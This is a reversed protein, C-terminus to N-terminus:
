QQVKYNYASESTKKFGGTGEGAFDIVESYTKILRGATDYEYKTALNNTGLICELENWENYVYSTMSSATPHIRFDDFYLTDNVTSVYIQTPNSLNVYHNLQVWDGAYITEGNFAELNSGNFVRANNYVNTTTGNNKHVWISIHYNEIGTQAVHLVPTMNVKFNQSGVVARESYQGTHAFTNVHNAIHVQGGTWGNAADEAGSYFQESYASNSTSIIKEHNNDTKTSAYNHNIDRAEQPMSFHNYFTTTSINKWDPNSQITESNAAAIGWNFDDYDGIYNQYTGDTNLEGDWVFTKHKRWIKKSRGIGDNPYIEFSGDNNVYKWNNNWTTIGIGTLEWNGAVEMYTKTMAEQTLMNKNNVNDVKSGMSYAGTSYEPITYSPIIETKFRTGKSDETITETVQGTLFDRKNYYNINTYNGKIEKTSVLTNPYIIKSTSRYKYRHYLNDYNLGAEKTINFFSEQIVGIEGDSSYNNKYNNITKSLVQNKSNFITMSNLRGIKSTFDRITQKTRSISKDFTNGLLWESDTDIEIIGEVGYTSSGIPFELIPPLTEFHYRTKGNYIGNNESSLTVYEYIVGPAPLESAFAIEKNFDDSPFYTTIGSINQSSPNVYSYNTKFSNGEGVLNISKVRLGGGLKGNPNDFTYGGTYLHLSVGAFPAIGGDYYSSDSEPFTDYHYTDETTRLRIWETTHMADIEYSDQIANFQGPDVRHFLFIKQGITYNTALDNEVAGDNFYITIFNNEKTFATIGLDYTTLEGSLYSNVHSSSYGFKDVREFEDETYAAETYFSDSEYEIEIDTGIPTTIKNLSWVDPYNEHYGWNDILDDNYQIHTNSYNFLYNPVLQIGQKGKNSISTLTLRGTNANPTNNALQYSYNFDIKKEVEIDSNFNDSVDLVNQHQHIDFSNLQNRNEYLNNGPGPWGVDLPSYFKSLSTYKNNYHTYGKITSTLSGSSKVYNVQDNDLLLIQKLALVKNEPIDMYRMNTQTGHWDNVYNGYNDTSPLNDISFFMGNAPNGPPYFYKYYFGTEGEFGVFQANSSTFTKCYFDIDLKSDVLDYNPIKNQYYQISNSKGDERLEKIFLATHTRTKIADLYYIQKRGWRVNHRYEDNNDNIVDRHLITNYGEKPSRWAYGDTWKGYEFEVWYGYDDEDVEGNNNIDVYDPGTIATLLWHTAYQKEKFLEYFAEDEYQSPIENGITEFNKYFSEFQYVPLSYHYTKGDSSTVRYAGIGNDLFSLDNTRDIGKAEIFLGSTANSKIQSNTFVDIINGERKRFGNAKKNGQPTYESSYTTDFDTYVNNFVEFDSIVGSFGSQLNVEGKSVRLFSNLANEFYFFSGKSNNLNYDLDDNSPLATLYKKGYTTINTNYDKTSKDGQGYLNIENFFRPKIMGNLGQAVLSYNDYNPYNAGNYVDMFDISRTLFSNDSLEYDHEDVTTKSEYPYLIGSIGLKNYSFLSYNVNTHTARVKFLGFDLNLGRTEISFNGSASSNSSYTEGSGVGFTSGSVALGNSGLSMGISNGFAGGFALSGSLGSNSNYNLGTLGNSVGFNFGSTNVSANLIGGQIGIGGGQGKTGITGVAGGYGFTVTGGFARNSGWSTSVGVYIGNPLVGGIGFDYYDEQWGEDYFFEKVKTKGWDDPYGNVNRNIAGTNLSWGLGVWSAEQEMAIGAHYSLTIPYGGEPSPVNLLPLVYSLDGTTLNVMDTADVPEFSMAEPATPGNNQSYLNHSFITLFIVAILSIKIKM